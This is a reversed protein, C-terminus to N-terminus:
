MGGPLQNREMTCSNQTTSASMIRDGATEQTVPGAHVPHEEGHRGNVSLVWLYNNVSPDM